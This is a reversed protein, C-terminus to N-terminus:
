KMSVVFNILEMIKTTKLACCVFCCKNPSVSIVIISSPIRQYKIISQHITLNGEMPVGLQMLVYEAAYNKAEEVSRCLKNPQFTSNPYQGALAPISM